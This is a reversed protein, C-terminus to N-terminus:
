KKKRLNYREFADILAVRRALRNLEDKADQQQLYNNLVYAIFALILGYLLLDAGRGVGVAHAMRNTIDPFIVAVIMAVTLLFLGIRQWARGIHTRRGSLGRFLLALACIIIAVQTVVIM